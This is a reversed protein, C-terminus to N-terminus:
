AGYSNTRKSNYLARRALRKKGKLFLAEIIKSGIQCPPLSLFYTLYYKFSQM